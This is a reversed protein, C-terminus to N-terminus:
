TIVISSNFSVYGKKLSQYKKIDQELEKGFQKAIFAIITSDIGGSFAVLLSKMKKLKAALRAKKEVASLRDRMEGKSSKPEVPSKLEVGMGRLGM